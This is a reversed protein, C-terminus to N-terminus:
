IIRQLKIIKDTLNVEIIKYGCDLILNPLTHTKSTRWYQKYKYASPYLSEGIINEIESFSLDLYQKDQSLLFKELNIFKSVRKM